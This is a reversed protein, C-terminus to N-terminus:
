CRRLRVLLDAALAAAEAGLFRVRVGDPLEVEIASATESSWRAVPATSAVVRVPLVSPRDQAERGLRWIWWRLTAVPIGREDAFEQTSKGSREYQRILQAWVDKARRM